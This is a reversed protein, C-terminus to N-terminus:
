NQSKDIKASSQVFPSQNSIVSCKKGDRDMSQHDPAEHARLIQPLHEATMAFNVPM